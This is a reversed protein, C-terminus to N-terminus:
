ANAKKYEAVIDLIPGGYNKLKVTGVGSVSKLENVNTPMVGSIESLVKDSFIVFAPVSLSKAKDRRWNKLIAFLEPNQVDLRYTPKYDEGKEIELPKSFFLKSGALISKTLPTSKLVSNNKYDIYLIGQNIMQTIYSKWEAFSNDRGLGFTKIKELGRDTIEKKFSGRLMDILLSLNINEQTRIVASIAKQALITGDFKIPPKLCNDCHNCKQNKFEGFYNLIFNTRCDTSNAFEWMRDLKAYQIEKFNEEAESMDVFYKLQTYDQWNYFLLTESPMGDRGSRGIEQYYGELNKPMNYHIVWRINSKDIGMGFAITACIIKVEDNQFKQQITNRKDPSMGAHYAKAPYGKKSLQEALKETSKKSLCYIIGADNKYKDIFFTINNIRDQGPLCKTLINDREFSSKFRKPDRLQLQEVIDDQTTGDATATLAIFPCDKLYNRLLAIRTYEPRFDNGWVSVCHAEDVAVLDVKIQKLINIFDESGLKEPSVYIIKYKGKIIDYIAESFNNIQSNFAISSIGMQNLTLVQDNMLAILPSVVITINQFIVAPLQYCISKGGGTPMIVMTDHGALVSQIIEEQTLRFSDYGFYEKLPSLLLDSTSNM